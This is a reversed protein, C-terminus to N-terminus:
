GTEQLRDQGVERLPPLCDGLEGDDRPLLEHVVDPFLNIGECGVVVEFLHDLLELEHSLYSASNISRKM